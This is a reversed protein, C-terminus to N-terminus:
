FSPDVRRRHQHHLLVGAIPPLGHKGLRFVDLMFWFVRAMERIASEHMVQHRCFAFPTIISREFHSIASLVMNARDTVSEDAAIVQRRVMVPRSPHIPRHPIVPRLVDIGNVSCAVRLFTRLAIVVIGTLALIFGLLM